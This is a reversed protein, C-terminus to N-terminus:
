CSDLCVHPADKGLKIRTIAYLDDKECVLVADRGSVNANPSLVLGRATPSAVVQIAGALSGSTSTARMAARAHTREIGRTGSYRRMSASPCGVTASKSSAIRAGVLWGSALRIFWLPSRLAARAQCDHAASLVCRTPSAAHLPKNTVLWWRGSPQGKHGPVHRAVAV